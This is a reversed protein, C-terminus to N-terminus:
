HLRMSASFDNNRIRELAINIDNIVKPRDLTKGLNGEWQEFKACPNDIHNFKMGKKFLKYLYPFDPTDMDDYFMIENNFVRKTIVYGSNCYSTTWTSMGEETPIPTTVISDDQYYKINIVDSCNMKSSVEEIVNDLITDDVQFSFFWTSTAKDVALNRMAGMTLMPTEIIIIDDDLEETLGHNDSLVIIIERPQLKRVNEIWRKIFRGYGNYVVTFVSVDM